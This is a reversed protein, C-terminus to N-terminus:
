ILGLAMLANLNALQGAMPQQAYQGGMGLFNGQPQWQQGVPQQMPQLLGKKRKKKGMPQQVPGGPGAMPVGGIAQMPGPAVGAGIGMLPAGGISGYGGPQVPAQPMMQMPRLNGVPGANGSVNFASANIPGAAQALQNRLGMLASERGWNPMRGYEAFNTNVRGAAGAPIYLPASM